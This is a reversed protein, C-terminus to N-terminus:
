IQVDFPQLLINLINGNWKRMEHCAMIVCNGNTRIADELHFQVADYISGLSQVLVLNQPFNANNLVRNANWDTKSIGTLGRYNQRTALDGYRNGGGCRVASRSHSRTNFSLALRILGGELQLPRLPPPAAPPNVPEARIMLAPPGIGYPPPPYMFQGIAYNLQNQPPSPGVITLPPLVNFQPPAAM